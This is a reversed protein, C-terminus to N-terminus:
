NGGEWKAEVFGKPDEHLSISGVIELTNRNGERGANGRNPICCCIIEAKIGKLSDNQM